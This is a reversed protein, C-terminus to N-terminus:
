RQNTELGAQGGSADERPPTRARVRTLTHTPLIYPRRHARRVGMAWTILATSSPKLSGGGLFQGEGRCRRISSQQCFSGLSRGLNEWIWLTRLLITCSGSGGFHM